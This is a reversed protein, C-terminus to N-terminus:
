ISNSQKRSSYKKRYLDNKKTAAEFLFSDMLTLEEFTSRKSNQEQISNKREYFPNLNKSNIKM